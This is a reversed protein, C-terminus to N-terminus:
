AVAACARLAPGAPQCAPSGHQRARLKYRIRSRIPNVTFSVSAPEIGARFVTPLALNDGIGRSRACAPGAAAHQRNVRCAEQMVQEVSHPAHLRIREKSQRLCVWIGFLPDPRLLACCQSPVSKASISHQGCQCKRRYIKKLRRTTCSKCAPFSPNISSLAFVQKQQM